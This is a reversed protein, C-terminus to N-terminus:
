DQALKFEEVIQVLRARDEKARTAFSGYPNDFIRYGLEVLRARFEPNRLAADIANFARAALPEPLGPPGWLASWSPLTVRDLGAERFTQVDPALPSRQPAVVGLMRTRGSQQWTRAITVTGFSAHINGAALDGVIDQVTKYHVPEVKRGSAAGFLLALLHHPSGPGFTGVLLPTKDASWQLFETLNRAPVQAGTSLSMDGTMMDMIPVMRTPDYPLKRFLAPNIAMEGTTGWLLTQGDPAASLVTSMAISGGAGPRNEIVVGNTWTEELKKALLRASIDPATGTAYGVVIRVPQSPIGPAPQARGLAPLLMTAAAAPFAGLLRRRALARSSQSRATFSALTTM